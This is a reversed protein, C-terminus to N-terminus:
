KRYINKEKIGIEKAWKPVDFSPCAKQAFQNHGAVKADPFRRLFDEVYLGMAERQRM